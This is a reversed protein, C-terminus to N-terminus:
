LNLSRLELRSSRCQDVRPYQWLLMAHRTPMRINALVLASIMMLNIRVSSLDLIPLVPASVRVGRPMMILRSKIM